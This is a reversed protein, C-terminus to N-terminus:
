QVCVRVCVCPIRVHCECSAFCPGLLPSLFLSLPPPRLAAAECPAPSPPAPHPQTPPFPPVQSINLAWRTRLVNDEPTYPLHKIHYRYVWNVAWWLASGLTYPLIVLQVAFVSKWSPCPARAFRVFLWAPPSASPSVFVMCACM